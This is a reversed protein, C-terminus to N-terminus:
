KDVKMKLHKWVAVDRADQYLDGKLLYLVIIMQKRIAPNQKQNKADFLILQFCLM